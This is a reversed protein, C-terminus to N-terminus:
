KSWRERQYRVAGIYGIVNGTVITAISWLKGSQSDVSFSIALGALGVVAFIARIIDYNLNRM